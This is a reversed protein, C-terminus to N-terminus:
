AAPAGQKKTLAADVAPQMFLKPKDGFHIVEGKGPEKISTNEYHGDLRIGNDSFVKSHVGLSGLVTVTPDTDKPYALGAPVHYSTNRSVITSRGVLFNRPEKKVTYHLPAEARIEALDGVNGTVYVKGATVSLKTSKPIDGDIVLIGSNFKYSEGAILDKGDVVLIKHAKAAGNFVVGYNTAAALLASQKADTVAIESVIDIAPKEKLIGVYTLIDSVFGPLKM